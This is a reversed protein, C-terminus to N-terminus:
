VDDSSCGSCRRPDVLWCKPVVPARRPRHCRCDPSDSRSIQLFPFIARPYRHEPSFQRTNVPSIRILEYKLVVTTPPCGVATPPYGVAAPRSVVTNLRRGFAAMACLFLTHSAHHLGFPGRQGLMAPDAVNAAPLQICEAIMWCCLAIFIAGWVSPPPPAHLGM